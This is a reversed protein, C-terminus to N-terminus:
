NAVIRLRQTYLQEEQKYRGIKQVFEKPTYGAYSKFVRGFHAQDAYNLDYAVEVLKEEQLQQLQCVALQFKILQKYAEFSLGIHAKFDRQFTRPSVRCEKALQLSSCGIYQEFAHAIPMIYSPQAISQHIFQSLYTTFYDLFQQGNTLHLLQDLQIGEFLEQADICQDTLQATDIGFIHKLAYPQFQIGFFLTGNVCQNLCFGKTKQGYVFCLPLPTDGRFLGSQGQRHQFIMGPYGDAYIRYSAHKGSTADSYWYGKVIWHLAAPPEFLQITM